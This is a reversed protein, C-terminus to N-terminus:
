RGTSAGDFGLSRLAQVVQPRLQWEFHAAGVSRELSELMSTDPYEIEASPDRAIGCTWITTGNERTPPAFGVAEAVRQGLKGYQLNAGEYGSYGAAKALLTATILHDPARLHAALMAKHGPPLTPLIGALAERYTETSPVGEEDREALEVAELRELESVVAAVADKRTVGTAKAVLAKRLYAQARWTGGVQGSM